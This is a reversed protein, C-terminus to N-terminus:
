RSPHPEKKTEGPWKWLLLFLLTCILWVCSSFYFVADIQLWDLLLGSALPGIIMGLSSASGLFGMVRGMGHERGTETFLASAAALAVASSLGTLVMVLAISGLSEAFPITALLISTCISAISILRVKHARDCLRGLPIQLVGILISNIALLLGTEFGSLERRITFLPFFSFMFVTLVAFQVQLSALALLRPTNSIKVPPVEQAAFAEPVASLTPLTPAISPLFFVLVLACVSLVFLSNFVADTGWADFLLGGALPGVGNGVFVVLNYFGMYRGEQGRPSITGVYTMAMPLLMASAMGHLLRAVLLGQVHAAMAYAIAILPYLSMSFTLIARPGRKDALRGIPVGLLIRVMYFSSFLLGVWLGTAGLTTAFPALVPAVAGTGIVSVM